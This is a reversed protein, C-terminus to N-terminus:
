MFGLFSMSLMAAAAAASATEKLSATAAASAAANMKEICAPDECCTANVLEETIEAPPIAFRTGCYKCVVEVSGSELASEDTIQYKAPILM